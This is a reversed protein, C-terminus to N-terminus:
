PICFYSGVWYLLQAWAQYALQCLDMHFLFASYPLGTSTFENEGVLTGESDEESLVMLEREELAAVFILLSIALYARMESTLYLIFGSGRAVVRLEVGFLSGSLIHPSKQLRLCVASACPV